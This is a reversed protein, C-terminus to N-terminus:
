PPEPASTPPFASSIEAFAQVLSSLLLQNSHHPHLSLQTHTKHTFMHQPQPIHITHRDAVSFVFHDLMRPSGMEKRAWGAIVPNARVRGDVFFFWVVPVLFHLIEKIPISSSAQAASAAHDLQTHTHTHTRAPLHGRSQSSVFPNFLRTSTSPLRFPSQPHTAVATPLRSFGGGDQTSINGLLSPPVRPLVNTRQVSSCTRPWLTRLPLTPHLSSVSATCEGLFAPPAGLHELCTCDNPPQSTWGSSDVELLCKAPSSLWLGPSIEYRRQSACFIM